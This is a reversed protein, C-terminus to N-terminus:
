PLFKRHQLILRDLLFIFILVLAAVFILSQNLNLAVAANKVTEFALLFNVFTDKIRNLGALITGAGLYYVNIAIALLFGGTILIGSWWQSSFRYEGAQIQQTVNTAFDPSLSFEVPHKLERFLTRYAAVEEQCRPCRELHEAVTSKASLNGDLWDQIQADTLHRTTM